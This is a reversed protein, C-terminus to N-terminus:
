KEGSLVPSITNFIHLSGFVVIGPQSFVIGQVSPYEVKVSPPAIPAPRVQINYSLNVQRDGLVNRVSNKDNEDTFFDTLRLTFNVPVSQSSMKAQILTDGM